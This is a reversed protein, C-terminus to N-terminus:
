IVMSLSANAVTAVLKVATVPSTLTDMAAASVVGKPWLVWVATNALVDEITSCTVHVAATGSAGPNAQLTIPSFVSLNPLLDPVLLYSYENPKSIIKTNYM